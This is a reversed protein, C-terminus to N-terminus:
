WPGCCECQYPRTTIAKKETYVIIILMLKIGQVFFLFEKNVYYKSVQEVTYKNNVTILWGIIQVSCDM